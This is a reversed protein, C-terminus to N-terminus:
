RFYLHYMRHVNSTLDFISKLRDLYLNNRAKYLSVALQKPLSQELTNLGLVNLIDALRSNYDSYTIIRSARNKLKQLRDFLCKYM